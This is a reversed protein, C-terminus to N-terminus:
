INSILLHIKQTTCHRRDHMRFFFNLAIESVREVRILIVNIGKDATSVQKKVQILQKLEEVYGTPILMEIRFILFIKKSYSFMKMVCVLKRNEM